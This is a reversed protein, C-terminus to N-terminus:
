DNNRIAHLTSEDPLIRRRREMPEIRDKIEFWVEDAECTLELCILELVGVLEFNVWNGNTNKYRHQALHGRKKAERLASKANSSAFTIIREECLRRKGPSGNCMVRFQFLLKASYRKGSQLQPKKGM